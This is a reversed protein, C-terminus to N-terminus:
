KNTALQIIPQNKVLVITKFVSSCNPEVITESYVDPVPEVKATWGIICAPLSVKAAFVDYVSLKLPLITDPLDPDPPTEAKLM